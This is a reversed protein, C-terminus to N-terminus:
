RPCSISALYYKRACFMCLKANHLNSANRIESMRSRSVMKCLSRAKRRRKIKEDLIHIRHNSSFILKADSNLINTKLIIFRVDDRQFNM